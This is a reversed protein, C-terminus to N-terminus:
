IYTISSTGNTRNYITIDLALNGINDNPKFVGYVILHGSTGMTKQPTMNTNTM